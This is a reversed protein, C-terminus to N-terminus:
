SYCGSADIQFSKQSKKLTQAFRKSLEESLSRMKESHQMRDPTLSKRPIPKSQDIQSQCDTSEENESTNETLTDSTRKESPIEPLKKMPKEYNQIESFNNAFEPQSPTSCTHPFNVPFYNYESNHERPVEEDNRRIQEDITPLYLGHDLTEYTGYTDYTRDFTTDFTTDFSTNFTDNPEEHFGSSAGCSSTDTNTRSTTPYTQFPRNPNPNKAYHNYVTARATM